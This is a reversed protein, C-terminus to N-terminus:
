LSSAEPVPVTEIPHSRTWARRLTILFTDVDQAGPVAFARDIVFFPVGSCGLARAEAEDARVELGFLDSELLAGVRGPDLGVGVGVDLLVKTDGIPKLDVFYAELL